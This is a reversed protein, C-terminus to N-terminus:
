YRLSLWSARSIQVRFTVCDILRCLFCGRIALGWPSGWLLVSEKEGAVFIRHISSRVNPQDIM